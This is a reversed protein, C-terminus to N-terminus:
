EVRVAFQESTGSDGLSSSRLAQHLYVFNVDGNDVIGRMNPFLNVRSYRPPMPSPSCIATKASNIPFIRTRDRFCAFTSYRTARINMGDHM